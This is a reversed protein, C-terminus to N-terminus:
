HMGDDLLAAADRGEIPLGVHAVLQGIRQRAADDHFQALFPQPAIRADLGLTLLAGPGTSFYGLPGHRHRRVALRRERGAEFRPVLAAMRAVGPTQAISPNAIPAADRGAGTRAASIRASGGESRM